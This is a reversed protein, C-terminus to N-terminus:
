YYKKCRLFVQFLDCHFMINLISGLCKNARNKTTGIVKNYLDSINKDNFFNLRIIKDKIRENIRCYYVYKIFYNRFIFNLFNRKNKISLFFAAALCILRHINVTFKITEIFITLIFFAM